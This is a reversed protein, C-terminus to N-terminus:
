QKNFDPFKLYNNKGKRKELKIIFKLENISTNFTKEVYFLFSFEASQFSTWNNDFETILPKIKFCINFINITNAFWDKM